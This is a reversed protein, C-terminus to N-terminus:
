RKNEQEAEKQCHLHLESPGASTAAHPISPIIQSSSSYITVATASPQSTRQVSERPAPSTRVAFSTAYLDRHIQKTQPAM